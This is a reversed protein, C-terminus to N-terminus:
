EGDEKTGWIEHSKKLLIIRASQEALAAQTNKLDRELKKKEKRLEFIEPDLKPRGRDKSMSISSYFDAKFKDLDSSHLGNSRLYNGLEQETMSYTKSIAELKKEPSWEKLKNKSMITNNMAYKQKWGYLTSSPVGVKRATAALGYSDPSLLKAVSDRKFSENYTTPNKIGM